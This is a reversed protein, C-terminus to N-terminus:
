RLPVLHFTHQAFNSFCVNFCPVSLGVFIFPFVLRLIFVTIEEENTNKTECVRRM